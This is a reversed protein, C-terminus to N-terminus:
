NGRFVDGTGGVGGGYPSRVFGDYAAPGGHGPRPPVYDVVLSPGNEFIPPNLNFYYFISTFFIEFKLHFNIPNILQRDLHDHKKM